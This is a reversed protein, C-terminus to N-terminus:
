KSLYVGLLERGISSKSGNANKLDYNARDKSSTMWNISTLFVIRCFSHCFCGSNKEFCAIM